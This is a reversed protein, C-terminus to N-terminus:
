VLASERARSCTVDTRRGGIPVGFWRIEAVDATDHWTMHDQHPALGLITQLLLVVAGASWAQPSNAGLCEVPFGGSTRPYGAFLEPLRHNPLHASADLLATVIRNAEEHFGYRTLGAAILSNDHPWVSGNHYSIPNYAAMRASMTRVGWGSFLDPEVLRRAMLAAKDEDVIGSWLCHGPNSTISDVQRKHGDLALAFLDEGPMWFDQNFRRKLVQAQARLEEARETLGLAQYLEALRAKADYVYGQVEVLAIPGEALTGDAFCISDPSDKWGQNVLGHLSKRAYEVYGDGDADGDTDIWRLAAEANPLLEKVLSADGTWRYTESLLILFLPTADATGYYRSHPIQGLSALEGLRIEHPIKGPEEDRFHDHRRSQYAALARLTDVAPEPGLALTQLATIASDRGFMAMYWPLGAAPVRHVGDVKLRLAALDRVARDYAFRLTADDTLLAPARLVFDNASRDEDNAYNAHGAAFPLDEDVGAEDTPVNHEPACTIAIRKRDVVPYISVCGQWTEKPALNIAFSAEDGLITPPESFVVVTSRVFEARRYTFTLQRDEVPKVAVAGVKEIQGGGRVEFVDAFDAAFKLTLTAELAQSGYNVLTIDEHLGGCVYRDRVLTVQGQSLTPGASNTAYFRAHAADLSGSTMALPLAGDLRLTFGSLFRTDSYFLGHHTGPVVDGLVDSVMFTNGEIVSISNDM